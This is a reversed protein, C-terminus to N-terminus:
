RECMRDAGDAPARCPRGQPMGFGTLTTPRIAARRGVSSRHGGGRRHCRLSWSPTGGDRQSEGSGPEVRDAPGGHQGRTARGPDRRATSIAVCPRAPRRGPGASRRRRHAQRTRQQGAADVLQLPSAQRHRELDVLGVRRQIQHLRHPGFPDAGVHHPGVVHWPPVQRRPATGRWPRGGPGHPARRVAPSLLSTRAPGSGPGPRARVVRRRTLWFGDLSAGAATRDGIHEVPETVVQPRGAVVGVPHRLQEAGARVPREAAPLRGSRQPRGPVARRQGGQGPQEQEAGGLALVGDRRARGPVPMASATAWPTSSCASPRTNARRQVDPRVRGIGVSNRSTESRSESVRGPGTRGSWTSPM